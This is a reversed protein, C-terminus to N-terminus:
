NPSTALRARQAQTLGLAFAGDGLLAQTVLAAIWFAPFEWGGNPDTFFFGAKGHVTLIAGLLIPILALSVVRTWVGLILALGGGVEAAMTAYALAPPLGLSAFFHATGSPTFVFLKLGAHALFLIGLSVRLALAGFAATRTDIM